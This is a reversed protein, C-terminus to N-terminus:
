ESGRWKLKELKVTAIDRESQFPSCFLSVIPLVRGAERLLIIVRLGLVSTVLCFGWDPIFDVVEQQDVFDEFDGM